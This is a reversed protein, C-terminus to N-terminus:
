GSVAHRIALVALIMLICGVGIQLAVERWGAEPKCAQKGCRDGCCPRANRHRGARHGPRHGCAAVVGLRLAADGAPHDPRYQLVGTQIAARM